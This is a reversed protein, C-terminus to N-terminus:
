CGERKGQSPKCANCVPLDIFQNDTLWDTPDKFPTRQNAGFRMRNGVLVVQM